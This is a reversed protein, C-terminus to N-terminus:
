NDKILTFLKEVSTTTGNNVSNASISSTTAKEWICTFDDPAKYESVFVQHGQKSLERVWQWFHEHNIKTLYKRTGEYPPDCYIISNPPIELSEYTENRFQVNKLKPVQMLVNARAEAQYDRISGNKTTTQGAYGDFWKGSYSCNFGVWGVVQPLNTEINAKVEYYQEKSYESPIWGSVLSKWMEILYYHNDNAIRNGTVESILNMGGAFPEVYWQGSKRDKLIIPLLEKAFRAKSGMYKM